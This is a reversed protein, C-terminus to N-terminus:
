YAALFKRVDEVTLILGWNTFNNGAYLVGSVNGWADVVPSGSNGPFTTITTEYAMVSLMCVNMDMGWVQMTAVKFKPKAKCQAEKMLPIMSGDIQEQPTDDPVILAYPFEVRSVGVIEGQTLSLPQLVPFGVVTLQQGTRVGDTSVKLGEVGPVGEVICLDTTDSIELIKRPLLRGDKLEVNVEGKKFVECVHANTLIYSVGSRGVVQFGTGGGRKRGAEDVALIRYTKEGVTNRLWRKHLTPANIALVGLSIVAMIIIAAGAVKNMANKAKNLIRELKKSM